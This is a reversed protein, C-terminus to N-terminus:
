NLRCEADLSKLTTWFTICLIGISVLRIPTDFATLFSSATAGLTGFTSFLAFGLPGCSCAGAAAGIFVGFIGGSMKQSSRSFVKIRYINMPIVLASLACLIVILSLGFETGTPLHSIFYPEFFLYESLFLLPILLGTFIAAAVAVFVPNSLFVLRLVHRTKLMM